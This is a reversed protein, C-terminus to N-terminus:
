GNTMEKRAADLAAREIAELRNKYKCVHRSDDPLEGDKARALTGCERLRAALLVSRRAAAIFQNATEKEIMISPYDGFATADGVERCTGLLEFDGPPCARLLASYARAYAVLGSVNGFLLQKFEECGEPGVEHPKMKGIEDLRALAADIADADTM